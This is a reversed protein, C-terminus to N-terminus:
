CSDMKSYIQEYVQLTNKATNEWSYLKARKYGLNGYHNRLSENSLMEGIANSIENINHPDILMGSDGVVEPISTINSAIVPTGCNMAELPPLGFGEYFSPYVFVECANYYIPLDEEDAFGTFLIKDAMNLKDRLKVLEQSTDKYSGVIVLNFESDLDKYIKTFASILSHVNKERM